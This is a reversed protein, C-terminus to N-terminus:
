MGVMLKRLKEAKRVRKKVEAMVVGPAADQAEVVSRYPGHKRDAEPADDENALWLVYRNDHLEITLDGVPSDSHLWVGSLDDFWHHEWKPRWTKM